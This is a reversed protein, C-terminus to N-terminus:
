RCSMRPAEGSPAPRRNKGSVAKTNKTGSAVRPITCRTCGQTNADNPNSSTATARSSIYPKVDPERQVARSGPKTIPPIPM